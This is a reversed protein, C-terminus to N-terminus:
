SPADLCSQVRRTVEAIVDAPLLGKEAAALNEALHDLNCTGVIITHCNANSLTYRLIFEARTAGELLEDLGAAPWIDNLAPRQIEADPGGHAIGGRIIVGAGSEAARDILDAHQPALCSYPIQFWHFRTAQIASRM